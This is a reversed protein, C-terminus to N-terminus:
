LERNNTGNVGLLAALALARFDADIDVPFVAKREKEARIKTWMKKAKVKAAKSGDKKRM